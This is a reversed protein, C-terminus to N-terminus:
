SDSGTDPITDPYVKGDDSRQTAQKTAPSTSDTSHKGAQPMPVALSAGFPRLEGPTHQMPYAVGGPEGMPLLASPAFLPAIVRPPTSTTM